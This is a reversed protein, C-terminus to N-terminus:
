LCSTQITDLKTSNGRRSLKTDTITEATTRGGTSRKRSAGTNSLGVGLASAKREASKCRIFVEVFIRRFKKGVLCYVLFNVSSNVTLLLNTVANVNRYFRHRELSQGMTSSTRGVALRLGMDPLQCAVFVSVVVVLTLTLNERHKRTAASPCSLRRLRRGRHLTRVLLVNLVVLLVLPGVARLALYCWTKYVVYYSESYRLSTASSRVKSRGTCPDLDRVTEREFLQPVNYVAALLVVILVASRVHKPTRLHRSFPRCVALYRDLTVLAITWTTVTQAFSALPWVYPEAYPFRDALVPIWDTLDNITKLSQVFVCSILYLSDSAALTELLYNTTLRKGTVTKLFILWQM